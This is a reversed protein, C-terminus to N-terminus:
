LMSLAADLAQGASRHADADIVSEYEEGGDLRVVVVWTNDVPNYSIKSAIM